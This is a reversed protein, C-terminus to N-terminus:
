DGHAGISARFVKMPAHFGRGLDSQLLGLPEERGDSVRKRISYKSQLNWTWCDKVFKLKTSSRRVIHLKDLRVVKLRLCWISTIIRNIWQCNAQHSYNVLIAFNFSDFIHVAKCRRISKYLKNYMGFLEMFENELMQICYIWWQDSMLELWQCGTWTTLTVFPLLFLWVTSFSSSIVSIRSEFPDWMMPQANSPSEQKLLSWEWNWCRNFRDTADNEFPKGSLTSEGWFM